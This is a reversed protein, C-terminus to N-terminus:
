LLQLYPHLLICPADEPHVRKDLGRTKKVKTGKGQKGTILARRASPGSAQESTVPIPTSTVPPRTSAQNSRPLHATATSAVQQTPTHVPGPIDTRTCRRQGRTRVDPGPIFVSSEDSLMITPIDLEEASSETPTEDSVVEDRCDTLESIDSLESMDSDSHRAMWMDIEEQTLTRRGSM